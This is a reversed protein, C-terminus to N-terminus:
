KGANRSINELVTHIFNGTRRDTSASVLTLPCIQTRQGAMGKLQPLGYFANKKDAFDIFWQGGLHKRFVEGVYRAMGDVLKAESPKKLEDIHPYTALILGEIEKLSDASFDLRAGVDAPISQLFREIADSTDMLWCQFQDDERM